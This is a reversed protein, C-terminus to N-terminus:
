SLGCTRGWVLPMCCEAQAGLLMLFVSEVRTEVVRVLKHMWGTMLSCVCVPRQMLDLAADRRELCCDVPDFGIENLCKYSCRYGSLSGFCCLNFRPHAPVAPGGTRWHPRHVLAAEEAPQPVARSGKSKSISEGTACVDLIPACLVASPFQHFHVSHIASRHPSFFFNTIAHVVVFAMVTPYLCSQRGPITSSAPITRAPLNDSGDTSLRM